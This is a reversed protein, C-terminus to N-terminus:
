KWTSHLDIAAPPMPMGYLHGQAFTCGVERLAEAQTQREVGEVVMVLGLDRSLNLLARLFRRTEPNTDVDRIFRRDTKIAQLPLTQLRLLSSYGSGFDDLVLRVDLDCLHRAV